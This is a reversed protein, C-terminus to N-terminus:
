RMTFILEEIEFSLTMGPTVVRPTILEMIDWLFGASPHTTTGLGLHTITHTTGDTNPGGCSEVQANRVQNAYKAWTTGSFSRVIQIRDYGTYATENTNQLGGDGPSAEHASIFLAAAAGSVLLNSLAQQDFLTNLLGERAALTLVM